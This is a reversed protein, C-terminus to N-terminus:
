DVAIRRAALRSCVRARIMEQQNQREACVRFIREEGPRLEDAVVLLRRQGGGALRFAAPRVTVSVPVEEGGLVAAYAIFTEPAQYPNSVTLYFGKAPGDTIGERALPGLGVALVPAAAAASMVGAAILPWRVRM